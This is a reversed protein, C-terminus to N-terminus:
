RKRKVEEKRGEETGNNWRGIKGKIKRDRREM